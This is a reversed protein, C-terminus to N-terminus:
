LQSYTTFKILIIYCYDIMIFWTTFYDNTQDGAGEEWIVEHCGAHIDIKRGSLLKFGNMREWLSHKVYIIVAWGYIYGSHACM